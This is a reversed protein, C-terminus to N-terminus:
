ASTSTASRGVEGRARPGIGYGGNYFGKRSNPLTPTVDVKAAGVYFRAASRAMAPSAGVAASAALVAILAAGVRAPRGILVGVRM